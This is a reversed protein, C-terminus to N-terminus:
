NPVLKMEYMTPADELDKKLEARLSAMYESAKNMVPKMDLSANEFQKRRYTLQKNLDDMFTQVGLKSEEILSNVDRLANDQPFIQVTSWADDSFIPRGSYALWSLDVM